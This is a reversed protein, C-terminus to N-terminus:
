YLDQRKKPKVAQFFSYGLGIDTILRAVLAPVAIFAHIVMAVAAYSGFEMYRFLPLANRTRAGLVSDRLLDVSPWRGSDVGRRTLKSYLNKSNTGRVFARWMRRPELVLGTSLAILNMFALTPSSLLSGTGLEWASVEGEGIRGVSYGTILHHLDHYKLYRHRTEINPLPVLLCGTYVPVTLPREGLTEGFGHKAYFASLEQQLQM